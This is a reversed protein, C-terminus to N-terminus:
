PQARIWEGHPLAFLEYERGSTGREVIRHLGFLDRVLRGTAPGHQSICLRALTSQAM